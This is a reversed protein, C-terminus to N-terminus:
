LRNESDPPAFWLFLSSSTYLPHSILYCKTNYSLLTDDHTETSYILGSLRSSWSCYASSSYLNTEIKKYSDERKREKERERKERERGWDEIDRDRDTQRREGNRARARKSERVRSRKTKSIEKYQTRTWLKGQCCFRIQVLKTKWNDYREMQHSIYLKPGKSEITFIAGSFELTDVETYTLSNETLGHKSSM